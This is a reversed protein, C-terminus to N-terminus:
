QGARGLWGVKDWSWGGWATKPPACEKARDCSRGKTSRPSIFEMSASVRAPPMPPPKWPSTSEGVSRRLVRTMVSGMKRWFMVRHSVLLCDALTPTRTIWFSPTAASMFPLMVKERFRTASQLERKRKAVIASSMSKSFPSATRKTSTTSADQAM